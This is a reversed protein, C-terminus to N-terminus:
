YTYGFGSDMSPRASSFGLASQNSFGTLANGGTMRAADPAVGSMQYLTGDPGVVYEGAGLASENSFGDLEEDQDGSLYLNEKAWKSDNLLRTRTFIDGAFGLAGCEAYLEKQKGLLNGIMQSGFHAGLVMAVAHKVGPASTKTKEDLEWPGAMKMAYRAAMVGLTAAPAKETLNDFDFLDPNKRRYTAPSYVSSAPSPNRRRHSSRRRKGRANYSRGESPNKRRKGYSRKRKNSSRRKARRRPNVIATRAM